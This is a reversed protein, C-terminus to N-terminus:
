ISLAVDEPSFLGRFLLCHLWGGGAKHLFCATTVLGSAYLWLSLMITLNYYHICRRHAPSWECGGHPICLLSLDVWDGMKSVNELHRSVSIGSLYYIQVLRFFCVAKKISSPGQSNSELRM